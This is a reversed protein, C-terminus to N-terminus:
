HNRAVIAQQTALVLDVYWQAHNYRYLASRVGENSGQGAGGECLYRAATFVADEVDWPDLRGDHDGDVAYAEFTRPMFQMPGVAGSSSPGNNRGHGSEVQGVAALLTWALGPCTTAASRYAKEFTVPIGLASIPDPDSHRQGARAEAEAEALRRRATESARLDRADTRLRREVKRAKRLAEDAEASAVRVRHLATVRADDSAKAADRLRATRRTAARWRMVQDGTSDFAEDWLLTATSVRWMAAEPSEATLISSALGTSGGQAYYARVLRARRRAAHTLERQAAQEETELHASDAFSRALARLAENAERSRRVSLDTLTKVERAARDADAEARDAATPAEGQGTPGPEQPTAPLAAAPRPGAPLPHPAAVLLLAAAM